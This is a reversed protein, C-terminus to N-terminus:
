AAEWQESLKEDIVPGHSIRLSAALLDFLPHNPPVDWWKGPGCELRIAWIVGANTMRFEGDFRSNTVLPPGGHEPVIILSVDEFPIIPTNPRSYPERPERFRPANEARMRSRDSM